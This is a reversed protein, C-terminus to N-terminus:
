EDSPARNLDVQHKSTLDKIQNSKKVILANNNVRSSRANTSILTKLEADLIAKAAKYNIELQSKSLYGFANPDKARTKHNSIGYNLSQKDITLKTKLKEIEVHLENAKDKLKDTNGNRGQSQVERDMQDLKRSLNYIQTEQSKISAKLAKLEPTLQAGYRLKEFKSLANKAVAKAKSEPKNALRLEKLLNDTDQQLNELKQDTTQQKSNAQDQIKENTDLVIYNRTPEPTLPQVLQQRLNKVESNLGNIIASQENTLGNPNSEPTQPKSSKSEPPQRRNQGWNLIMSRVSAGIKFKPKLQRSTLPETTVVKTSEDIPTTDTKPALAEDDHVYRASQLGSNMDLPLEVNYPLRPIYAKNFTPPKAKTVLDQATPTAPLHNQLQHIAAESQSRAKKQEDQLKIKKTLLQTAYGAATAASLSNLKSDIVAIAQETVEDFRALESTIYEQGTKTDNTLEFALKQNYEQDTVIPNSELSSLSEKLAPTKNAITTIAPLLKSVEQSRTQPLQPGIEIYTKPAETNTSMYINYSMKSM